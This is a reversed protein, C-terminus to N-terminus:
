PLFRHIHVLFVETVVYFVILIKQNVWVSKRQAIRLFGTFISSIKLMDHEQKVLIYLNNQISSWILTFHQHYMYTLRVLYFIGLRLIFHKLVVFINGLFWSYNKCLTSSDQLLLRPLTFNRLLFRHSFLLFAIITFMTLRENEPINVAISLFIKCIAIYMYVICM